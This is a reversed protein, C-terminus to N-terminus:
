DTYHEAQQRYKKALASLEDAVTELETLVSTSIASEILIALEAFHDETVLDIAEPTLQGKFQKVIQMAHEQQSHSM